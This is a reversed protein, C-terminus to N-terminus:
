KNLNNGTIGDPNSRFYGEVHTGDARTYGDVWHVGTNATTPVVEGTVPVGVDVDVDVGQAIDVGDIGHVGDVLDTLEAGLAVGAILGAGLALLSGNFEKYPKDRLDSIKIEAAKVTLYKRQEWHLYRMISVLIINTLIKEGRFTVISKYGDNLDTWELLEFKYIGPELQGGEYTMAKAYKIKSRTISKHISELYIFGKNERADVQFIPIFKKHIKEFNIGAEVYQKTMTVDLNVIIKTDKM